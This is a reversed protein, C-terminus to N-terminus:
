PWELAKMKKLIKKMRAPLLPLWKIKLLNSIRGSRFVSQPTVQGQADQFIKKSKLHSFHQEWELSKMRLQIKKMRAPLSSMCLAQTLEFKPWTRGNVVSNATLSSRFVINLLREHKISNKRVSKRRVTMDVGHDAM